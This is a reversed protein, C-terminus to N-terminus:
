SSLCVYTHIYIINPNIVPGCIRVYVYYSFCRDHMNAHVPCMYTLSTHVYVHVKEKLVLPDLVGVMPNASFVKNYNQERNVLEM